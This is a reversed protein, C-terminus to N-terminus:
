ERPFEHPVVRVFADSYQYDNRSVVLVHSGGRLQFTGSEGGRLSPHEVEGTTSPHHFDVIKGALREARTDILQLEVGEDALFEVYVPQTKGLNIRMTRYMGPQAEWLPGMTTEEDCRLSVDLWQGTDARELARERLGPYYTRSDTMYAAELDDYDQETFRELARELEAPGAGDIVVESVGRISGPGHQELIFAMFHQAVAYDLDGFRYDNSSIWLLDSPALLEDGGGPRPSGVGSFHEALAEELFLNTQAQANLVAHVIEHTVSDGGGVIVRTGPYYCGIARSSCWSDLDGTIWYFRIREGHPVSISLSEEVFALHDELYSLTGACVPHEFDPAIEFHETEYAVEPVEHCGSCSAALALTWPLLAPLAHSRPM